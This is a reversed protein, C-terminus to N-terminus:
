LLNNIRKLGRKPGEETFVYITLYFKIIYM